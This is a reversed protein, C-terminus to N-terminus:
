TRQPMHCNLCSGGAGRPDHHSHAQLAAPLAFQTHCATCVANGAPGEPKGLDGGHDAAHPDHCATCTIRCNGLLLDRAEGSNIHSGGPSADDRAKGEWTWPYGTFLVQHCRACARTITENRPLSDAFRFFPSRPELSTRVRPDRVHERSGGHRSECGIGIELLHTANFRDWTVNLAKRAALPLTAARSGSARRLFDIGSPLARLIAVRCLRLTGCQQARM